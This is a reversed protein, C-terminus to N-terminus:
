GSTKPTRKDQAEEPCRRVDQAGGQSGLMNWIRVRSVRSIAPAYEDKEGPTRWTRKDTVVVEGTSSDGDAKPDDDFKQWFVGVVVCLNGRTRRKTVLKGSVTEHAVHRVEREAIFEGTTAKIGLCVGDEWMCTVKGLSRWARRRKWQIGEAFRMGEVKESKGKLREYSKEGDHGVELRWFFLGSDKKDKPKPNTRLM